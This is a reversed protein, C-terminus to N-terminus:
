TEQCGRQWGKGALRQAAYKALREPCGRRDGKEDLRQADESDIEGGVREPLKEQWTEPRSRQWDKEAHRQTTEGAAKGAM